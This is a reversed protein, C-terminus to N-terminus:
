EQEKRAAEAARTILAEVEVRISDELRGLREYSETGRVHLRAQNVHLLAANLSARAGILADSM